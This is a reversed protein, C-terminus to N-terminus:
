ILSLTPSLKAGSTNYKNKHADIGSINALFTINPTIVKVVRKHTNATWHGQTLSTLETLKVRPKKYLKKKFSLPSVM